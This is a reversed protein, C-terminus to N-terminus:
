FETEKPSHRVPSDETLIQGWWVGTEIEGQRQQFGGIGTRVRGGAPSEDGELIQRRRVRERSSETGGPSCYTDASERKTRRWIEDGDVGLNEQMERVGESM